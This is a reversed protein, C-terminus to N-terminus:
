RYLGKEDILACVAPPLFYRYHRGRRVRDRIVSSSIEILPANVMHVKSVIGPLRRELDPLNVYDNPRRMVGLGALCNLFQQPRKWTSLDHLSDGGMLYFLEAGPNQQALLQVTDASYHPGPRDIEIRSIEFRDDPGVAAQVMELRVQVPSIPRNFKHPPDPTVVWLVRDLALQGCAEAALILHGIHPPDFTGGFIGIRM